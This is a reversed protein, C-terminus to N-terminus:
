RPLRDGANGGTREQQGRVALTSHWAEGEIGSVVALRVALLAALHDGRDYGTAPHRAFWRLAAIAKPGDRRLEDALADAERVRLADLGPDADVFTALDAADCTLPDVDLTPLPHATALLSVIIDRHAAIATRLEDTLRDPPGIRLTGDVVRVTLGSSELRDLLAAASDLADM